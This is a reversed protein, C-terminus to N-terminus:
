NMRMMGFNCEGTKELVETTEFKVKLSNNMRIYDGENILNNELLDDVVDLLETLSKKMERLYFEVLKETQKDELLAKTLILDLEVLRRSLIIHRQTASHNNNPNSFADDFYKIIERYKNIQNMMLRMKSFNIM